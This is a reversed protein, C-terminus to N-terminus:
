RPLNQVSPRLRLSGHQGHMLELRKNASKDLHAHRSPMRPLGSFAFNIDTLMHQSKMASVLEFDTQTNDIAFMQEDMQIIALPYLLLMTFFDQLFNGLINYRERMVSRIGAFCFIITLQFTEAFCAVVSPLVAYIPLSLFISKKPFWM